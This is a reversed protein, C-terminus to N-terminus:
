TTSGTTATCSRSAGTAPRLAFGAVLRQRALSIALSVADQGAGVGLGLADAALAIGLRGSEEIFRMGAVGLEIFEQARELRIARDEVVLRRDDQGPATGQEAQERM